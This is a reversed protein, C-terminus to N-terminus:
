RFEGRRTLGIVVRNERPRYKISVIRHWERVTGVYPMRVIPLIEDGVVYSGLPANRHRADVVIEPVEVMASLRAALEERAEAMARQTSDIKKDDVIAPLRIRNGVWVSAEGMVQDIGEGKGHVYVTDAYADAPEEIPAFEIINEDQAFRLDTRRTGAQPYHIQIWHKVDVRATSTWAVHETFDFPTETGLSEIEGGCLVNDWYDITKPGADFAVAEGAGTTFEVNTPETGVTIPTDGVVTVGLDGRPFEQIHAWLMRVVDAPDVEVGSFRGRFPVRKAYGHVGVAELKLEGDLTISVPQMIGAARIEKDEELYIWTAWPELGMDQISGIEPKFTGTILTAGSLSWTVEPDTVPLEMSLWRGDLIHRAILRATRRPPPPPPLPSTGGVKETVADWAIVEVEATETGTSASSPDPTRWVVQATDVGYLKTVTVPLAQFEAQKFRDTTDGFSILDSGAAVVTVAATDAVGLQDVATKPQVAEPTVDAVSGSDSMLAADSVVKQADQPPPGELV